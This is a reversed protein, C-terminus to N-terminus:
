GVEQGDALIMQRLDDLDQSRKAFDLIKQMNSFAQRLQTGEFGLDPDLFSDKSINPPKPLHSYVFETYLAGWIKPRKQGNLPLGSLRSIEKALDEVVGRLSEQQPQGREPTLSLQHDTGFHHRLKKRIDFSGDAKNQSFFDGQIVNGYHRRLMERLQFLTQAIKMYELLRGMHRQFINIGDATLYQHLKEWKGANDRKAQKLGASIDGPLFGYVLENTLQGFFPTSKGKVREEGTLRTLGAYFEDSFRKEWPSPEPAILFERIEEVTFRRNGILKKAASFAKVLDIKCQVVEPTNRSLTMLFTAQDETLYVFKPANGTGRSRVGTEFLLPGFAEEMVTKYKTTLQYFNDHEVGLREAVLRSDVLLTGNQDVIKLEIM